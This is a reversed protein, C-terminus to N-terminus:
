PDLAVVDVVHQDDRERGGIAGARADGVAGVIREDAVAPPEVGM